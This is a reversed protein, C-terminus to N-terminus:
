YFLVSSPVEQKNFGPGEWMLKLFNSGGGQFYKLELAHKGSKLAVTTFRELAPHLGDSNILERENLFMRSGDNSILYFTYLGDNPIEIYGEFNLAFYQEKEKPELNIKSVVGSKIPKMGSFDTVSHFSGTYYNYSVGPAVAVSENPQMLEAKEVIATAPLSVRGNVYALMNITTTEIISFPNVYLKSNKTPESGDLTYYIEAGDTDCALSVDTKGLFLKSDSIIYPTTVIPEVDSIQPVPNDAAWEKNPVSGMELVLEGGKVLESHNFWFKNLPKGNLIASQIYRNSTSFNNALITFEKGSYYKDDLQITIKEFLPGAIEYVPNSSTGGEMEFLGMASM